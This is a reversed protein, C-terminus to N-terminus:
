PDFCLHNEHFNLRDIINILVNMRSIVGVRDLSVEADDFSSTFFFPEERRPRKSGILKVSAVARADRSGATGFTGGTNSFHKSRMRAGDTSAISDFLPTSPTRKIIMSTQKSIREPRDENWSCPWKNTKSEM